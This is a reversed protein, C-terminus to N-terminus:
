HVEGGNKICAKRCDDGQVGIECKEDCSQVGIEGAKIGGGRLHTTGTSASSNSFSIKGALMNIALMVAIAILSVIVINMKKNM